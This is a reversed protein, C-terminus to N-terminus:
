RAPASFHIPNVGYLAIWTVIAVAFALGLLGLVVSRPWTIRRLTLRDLSYAGAGTFLLTAAGLGLLFPVNFPESWFAAGSVNVAWACLMASLVACACLPTLAGLLLGIGGVTESATVMFAAFAPLRWGADTMFGVTTSFDTAKILGAQLVGAGIGIRLVLLGADVATSNSPPSLTPHEATM